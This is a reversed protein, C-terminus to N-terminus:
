ILYITCLHKLLIRPFYKKMLNFICEWSIGNFHAIQSRRKLVLELRVIWILSRWRFLSGSELFLSIVLVGKKRYFSLWIMSMWKSSIQIRSLSMVFKHCKNNPIEPQFTTVLDGLWFANWEYRLTQWTFIHFIHYVM